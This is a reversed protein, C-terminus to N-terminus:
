AQGGVVAEVKADIETEIKKFLFPSGVRQTERKEIGVIACVHVCFLEL